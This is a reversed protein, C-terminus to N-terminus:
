DRREDSREGRQAEGRGNTGTVIRRLGETLNSVLHAASVLTPTVAGQAATTTKALSSAIKELAEVVGGAKALTADVTEMVGGVHTLTEGIPGSFRDLQAMSQDLATDVRDLTRGVRMFLLLTAIGIILVGLGIGGDLLYAPDM